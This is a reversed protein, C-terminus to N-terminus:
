CIYVDDSTEVKNLELKVVETYMEGEKKLVKKANEVEILTSFVGYLSVLSLTNTDSDYHKEYLLYVFGGGLEKIEAM